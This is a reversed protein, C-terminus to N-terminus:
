IGSSRIYFVLAKLSIDNKSHNDCLVIKCLLHIKNPEFLEFTFPMRDIVYSKREDAVTCM